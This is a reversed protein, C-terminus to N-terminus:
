LPDPPEWLAQTAADYAAYRAGLRSELLAWAGAGLLAVLGTLMAYEVLDQGTSDRLLRKIM